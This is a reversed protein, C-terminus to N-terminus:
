PATRVTRKGPVARVPALPRSPPGARDLLRGVLKIQAQTASREDGLLGSALVLPRALSAAAAIPAARVRV